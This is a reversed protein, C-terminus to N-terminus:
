ANFGTIPNVVPNTGGPNGELGNPASNGPRNDLFPNANPMDFFLGAGGRLVMGKSWGPQYSFGLRPSINAYDPDYVNSIDVGQFAIYTSTTGPRFVSLDKKDNHMPQMFDYRAGFNINLSQTLQYSDQAFVDFAHSYVTREPDGFAQTAKTMYGALFNALSKVKNDSKQMRGHRPTPTTLPSVARLM